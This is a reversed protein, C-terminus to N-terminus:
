GADFGGRGRRGLPGVLTGEIWGNRGDVHVLVGEDIHWALLRGAAFWSKLRWLADLQQEGVGFLQHRSQLAAHWFQLGHQPAVGGRGSTAEDLDGLGM